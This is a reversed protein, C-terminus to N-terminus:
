DFTTGGCGWAAPDQLHIRDCGWRFKVASEKMTMLQAAFIACVLM